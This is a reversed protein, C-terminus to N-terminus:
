YAKEMVDQAFMFKNNKLEFSNLLVVKREEKYVTISICYIGPDKIDEIKDFIYKWHRKESNILVGDFENKDDMMANVYVDEKAFLLEETDINESIVIEGVENQIEIDLGDYNGSSTNNIEVIGDANYNVKIAAPNDVVIVLMVTFCVLGTIGLKIIKETIYLLKVKLKKEKIRNRGWGFVLLALAIMYLVVDFIALGRNKEDFKVMLFINASFLFILVGMYVKFENVLNKYANDSISDYKGYEKDCLNYRQLDNLVYVAINYSLILVSAFALVVLGQFYWAIYGHKASINLMRVAWKYLIAIITGVVATIAIVTGLRTNRREGEEDATKKCQIGANEVLENDPMAQITKAERQMLNRNKRKQKKGKRM